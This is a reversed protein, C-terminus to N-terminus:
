ATHPSVRTHRRQGGHKFNFTVAMSNAPISRIAPFSSYTGRRSILIFCHYNCSANQHRRLSGKTQMASAGSTSGYLVGAPRTPMERHFDLFTRTWKSLEERITDIMERIFRGETREKRQDRLRGKLCASESGPVPTRGLHCKRMLRRVEDPLSLAEVGKM